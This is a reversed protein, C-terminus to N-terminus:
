WSVYTRRAASRLVLAWPFVVRTRLQALVHLSAQRFHHSAVREHLSHLNTHRRLM